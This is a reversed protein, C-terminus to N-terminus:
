FEEVTSRDNTSQDVINNVNTISRVDTSAAATNASTAVEDSTSAVTTTESTTTTTTTTEESTILSSAYPSYYLAANMLTPNTALRALIRALAQDRTPPCPASDIQKLYYNSTFCFFFM